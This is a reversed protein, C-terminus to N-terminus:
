RSFGSKIRKEQERSEVGLNEKHAGLTFGLKRKRKNELKLGTGKKKHGWRSVGGKRRKEKERAEVESREEHAGMVFGRGEM